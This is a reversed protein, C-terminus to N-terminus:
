RATYARNKGATRNRSRGVHPKRVPPTPRPTRVGTEEQLRVAAAGALQPDTLFRMGPKRLERRLSQVFTSSGEYRRVWNEGEIRAAREAETPLVIRNGNRDLEVPQLGQRLQLLRESENPQTM